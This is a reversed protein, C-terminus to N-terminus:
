SNKVESYPAGARVVPKTTSQPTISQTYLYACIRRDGYRTRAQEYFVDKFRHHYQAQEPYVLWSWESVPLNYEATATSRCVAGTYQVFALLYSPGHQGRHKYRGTITIEYTQNRHVTTPEVTVKLLAASAASAATGSVIVAGCAVATRIASGRKLDASTYRVARCGHNVM